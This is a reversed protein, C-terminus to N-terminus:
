LQLKTTIAILRHLITIKKDLKMYKYNYNYHQIHLQITIALACNNKKQCSVHNDETILTNLLSVM